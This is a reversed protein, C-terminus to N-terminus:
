HTNFRTKFASGLTNSNSGAKRGTERNNATNRLAADKTWDKKNNVYHGVWLKAEFKLVV